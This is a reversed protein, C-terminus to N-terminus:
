LSLHQEFEPCIELFLKHANEGEKAISKELHAKGETIKGSYFYAIGIFLDIYELEPENEKAACYFTLADEFREEDMLLNGVAMMTDPQKPNLALSKYYALLANETDELGILAEALCVWADPADKQIDIAKDIYFISKDYEEMELLCIGIGLLSDYSQPYLELSNHYYKLAESYRESEEYCEAIFINEQWHDDTLEGYHQYTEIAEEYRELEFLAHGRQMTTLVDKDNIAYAFNYAKLAQEYKKENFYIQGISFWAESNYADIDLVRNYMEMALKYDAMDEYCYALELLLDINKPNIQEGKKLWYAATITDNQCVFVNAIDICVMEADKESETIEETFLNNALLKAERARGIRILVDIRVLRAEYDTKDTLADLVSMANRYDGTAVYTKARKVKLESNNPHLKYGLDLVEACDKTQGKFLYYDVIEALEDADFYGTAYGKQFDEYRQVIGKTDDDFPSDLEEEM